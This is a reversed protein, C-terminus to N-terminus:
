QNITKDMLKNSILEKIPLSLKTKILMLRMRQTNKPIRRINSQYHTKLEYIPNNNKIRFMPFIAETTIQICQQLALQCGTRYYFTETRPPHQRNALSNRTEILIFTKVQKFNM